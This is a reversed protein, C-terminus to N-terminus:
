KHTRQYLSIHPCYTMSFFPCQEAKRRILDWKQDHSPRLRIADFEQEEWDGQHVVLVFGGPKLLREFTLLWKEANGYNAPLGWALAPDPSVFPYFAFIFDYAGKLRFVDGAEYHHAHPVPLLSLYYSAKDARSHLDRLIPFPDVEVGTVAFSKESSKAYFAELAPIRDFDQCGAELITLSCVKDRESVAEHVRMQELHWLTALNKRYVYPHLKLRYRSLQYRIELDSETESLPIGAEGREEYGARRFRLNSRSRLLLRNRNSQQLQLESLRKV